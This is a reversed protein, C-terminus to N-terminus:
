LECGDLENMAVKGQSPSEFYLGEGTYTMAIESSFMGVRFVDEPIETSRSINFFRSDEGVSLHVCDWLWVIDKTSEGPGAEKSRYDGSLVIAIPDSSENKILGKTIVPCGVLTVPLGFIVVLLAKPKVRSRHNLSRVM